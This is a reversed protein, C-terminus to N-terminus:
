GLEVLSRASAAVADEPSRFTIGLVRRTKENDVPREYGLDPLISRANPDVLAILRVVFNPVERAKIKGAQDPVAKKIAAAVERMWMTGAVALFREGAAAESEMAAVHIDAVDRVDVVPFHLKPTGPYKGGLFDQIIGLSTGLRRDLAPGAVLGPNVVSLSMGSSDTDMFEWAAREALTKSVGYATVAHNPNETNTWDAESYTSGGSSPSPGVAMVAVTSSTLVLRKVGADSAAKLVRLTGERAPKILDDANKPQAAPFPSAVHLVFDAGAVAEAWGEDSLLETQAFDLRGETDALKALTERVQDSKSLDRVTGRVRYGKKLLALACHKAIFGSIGTVLVLQSDSADNSM